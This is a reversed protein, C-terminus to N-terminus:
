LHKHFRTATPRPSARSPWRPALSRLAKGLGCRPLCAQTQVPRRSSPCNSTGGLALSVMRGQESGVEVDPRGTLDARSLVAESLRASLAQASLPGPRRSASAWLLDPQVDALTGAAGPPPGALLSRGWLRWACAGGGLGSTRSGPLKGVAKGGDASHGATGNAPAFDEHRLLIPHRTGHLRSFVWM